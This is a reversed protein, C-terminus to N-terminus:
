YGRRKNVEDLTPCSITSPDGIIEAMAWTKSSVREAQNIAATNSEQSKEIASVLSDFDNLSNM